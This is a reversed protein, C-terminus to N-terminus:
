QEAKVPTKVRLCINNLMRSLEQLEFNIELLNNSYGEIEYKFTILGRITELVIVKTFLYVLHTLDTAQDAIVVDRYENDLKDMEDQSGIVKLVRNHIKEEDDKIIFQALPSARYVEINKKIMESEFVVNRVRCKYNGPVPIQIPEQPRMPPISAFTGVNNDGTNPSMPHMGGTPTMQNIGVTSVPNPRETAMYYGGISQTNYGYGVNPAPYPEMKPNPFPTQQQYHRSGVNPPLGGQALLESQISQITNAISSKKAASLRSGMVENRLNNLKSIVPQYMPHYM